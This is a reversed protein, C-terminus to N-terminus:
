ARRARVTMALGLLGAALLPITGPEPVSAPAFELGGLTGTTPMGPVNVGTLFLSAVGSAPNVISIGNLGGIAGFPSNPDLGMLAFAYIANTASDYGYLTGATVGPFVVDDLGVVNAGTTDNVVTNTVTQAATGPNAILTYEGTSGSSPGDGEATLVLTGSPTSKLSDTDPQTGTQQATLVTTVSLLGTPNNGQDLSVLIPDTPATPNTESLYVKGGLFAVDDFGRGSTAGYVYPPAYNLPASVTQTTPNILTIHANGDQNQLAWVIGTTPNVKLGDVLGAISYQSQIAGSFRNYQVITSSGSAGTSSAGNGYEVWLSDGSVSLSDPRTAGIAAGTALQTVGTLLPAAHATASLAPALAAALAALTLAKM